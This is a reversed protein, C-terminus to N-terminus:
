SSLRLKILRRGLNENLVLCDGIYKPEASAIPVIKGKVQRARQVKAGGQPGYELLYGLVLEYGGKLEYQVYVVLQGPKLELGTLDRRSKTNRQSPEFTDSNSADLFRELSLSLITTGGSGFVQTPRRATPIRRITTGISKKYESVQGIRIGTSSAYAV